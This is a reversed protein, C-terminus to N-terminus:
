VDVNRWSNTEQVRTPNGRHTHAYLLCEVDEAKPKQSEEEDITRVRGGM